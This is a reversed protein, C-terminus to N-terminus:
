GLSCRASWRSCTGWSTRRTGTSDVPTTTDRASSKSGVCGDRREMAHHPRVRHQLAGTPRGDRSRAGGRDDRAVGRTAGVDGRLGGGSGVGGQVEGGRIKYKKPPWGDVGRGLLGGGRRRRLRRRARPKRAADLAAAIAANASAEDTIAPADVYVFSGDTNVAKLKGTKECAEVHHVDVDDTEREDDDSGNRAHVDADEEKHMEKSQEEREKPDAASLRMQLRTLYDMYAQFAAQASYILGDAEVRPTMTEREKLLERDAEDYGRKMDDMAAQRAAM